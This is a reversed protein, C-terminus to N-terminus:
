TLNPKWAELSMNRYEEETRFFRIGMETIIDTCNNQIENVQEFTAVSRWYSVRSKSLKEVNFPGSNFIKRM